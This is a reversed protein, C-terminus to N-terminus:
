LKSPPILCRTPRRQPPPRPACGHQQQPRRCSAGPLPLPLPLPLQLLARRHAPSGQVAPCLPRHPSRQRSSNRCTCSAPCENRPQQCPCPRAPWPPGQWAHCLNYQHRQIACASTDGQSSCAPPIDQLHPHPPPPPAVTHLCQRQRAPTHTAGQPPGHSQLTRFSCSQGQHFHSLRSAFGSTRGGGRCARCLKLVASSNSGDRQCDGLEVGVGFAVRARRGRAAAPGSGAAIFVARVWCHQRLAASARGDRHPWRAGDAASQSVLAKRV